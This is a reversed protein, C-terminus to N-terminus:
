SRCGAPACVCVELFQGPQDSLVVQFSFIQIKTQKGGVFTELATLWENKHFCTEEVVRQSWGLGPGKLPEAPNISFTGILSFM